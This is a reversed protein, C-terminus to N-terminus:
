LSENNSEMHKGAFERKLRKIMREIRPSDNETDLVIKQYSMFVELAASKDGCALLLDGLHKESLYYAIPDLPNRLIQEKVIGIQVKLLERKRMRDHMLLWALIFLGIALTTVMSFGRPIGARQAIKVLFPLSFALAALLAILSAYNMTVYLEQLM